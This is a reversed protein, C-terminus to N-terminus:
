GERRVAKGLRIPEGHDLAIVKAQPYLDKVRGLLAEAESSHRYLGAVYYYKSGDYDEYVRVGAELEKGALGMPRKSEVLLVQFVVGQIGVASQRTKEEGGFDILSFHVYRNPREKIDIMLRDLNEAADAMRNYLQTDHLLMGMSGEGQNIGSLVGSAEALTGQLEGITKGLDANKLQGTVESLNDLSNAIQERKGALTASLLDVRRLTNDLNGGEAFQTNMTQSLQALNALTADLNAVASTFRIQTKTDFFGGMQTLTSDLKVILRETKEKLPLVQISMQDVFDGMVSSVLTDGSTLVGNGGMPVFQVGKSGLLDLSYIEARTDSPFRVKKNIAFTVLFKNPDTPHIEIDRVSGVKFGKYFVPSADSLGDVRNYEGYYFDGTFFIDRGKLFNIGWVLIGFTFLVVAGTKVEKTLKM